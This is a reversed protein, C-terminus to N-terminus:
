FRGNFEIGLQAALSSWDTKLRDHQAELEQWGRGFELPREARSRRPAKGNKKPTKM